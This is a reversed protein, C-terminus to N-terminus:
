ARFSMSSMMTVDCEVSGSPTAARVHRMSGATPSAPGASIPPCRAAPNPACRDASAACRSPSRMVTPIRQRLGPTNLRDAASLHSIRARKRGELDPQTHEGAHQVRDACLLKQQVDSAESRASARLGNRRPTQAHEDGDEDVRGAVSRANVHPERSHHTHMEDPCVSPSWRWALPL